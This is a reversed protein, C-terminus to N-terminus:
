LSLQEGLRRDSEDVGAEREGGVLRHPRKARQAVVVSQTCQALAQTETHEVLIGHEGGLTGGVSGWDAGRGAYFPVDARGLHDKKRLHFVHIVALWHGARMGRRLGAYFPVDENAFRDRKVCRLLLLLLAIEYDPHLESHLWRLGSGAYFSVSVGCLRDWIVCFPLRVCFSLQVCSILLVAGRWRGRHSGEGAYFSVFRTHFRDGKVCSHQM